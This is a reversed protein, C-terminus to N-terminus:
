NRNKLAIRCASLVSEAATEPSHASLINRSCKGMELLQDRADAAARIVRLIDGIDNPNFVWGNKGEQVMEPWCGNYRSCLVPLGCAMAEPVVLSWNDELTPIVFIDAAAYFKAMDTYDVSGVFRVRELGEAMVRGRLEQEQSGGGVLLLTGSASEKEFQSWAALLLDVGKLHILRGAYLFIVGEAKHKELFAKKEAGTVAEAQKQLSETDASMHGTTIREAPMGLDVTYQKSLMGNCCMADTFHLVAKRYLKRYWQAHRETHAWREYCIVLPTGFGIRYLLAPLTWKFFGDCVIIDPKLERIKKLVGPHIRLSVNRNALFHRDEPGIRWEGTLPLSRRGLVAVAKEQVAQPVYDGAYILYLQGSVLKDLEGYVPVRYDLFSRTVWAIKM